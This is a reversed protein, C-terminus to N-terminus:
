GARRALILSGKELPDLDIREIGAFGASELWEVYDGYRYTQTGTEYLLTLRFASLFANNPTDALYEHIVLLGGPNLADYIQQIALRNEDATHNHAVSLYFVVDHQGHWDHVLLEGPSAHIRESLGHRAITSDTETLASPLDVILASLQPYRQCFRISHMGHSGGLDLLRRHERTIPVHALLDPGLDGAFADMYASFTKGLQPKDEMAQWLTREPSGRRVAASLDGMMPWAELTWQLGPTYDVQGASTFWRQTSATNAFQEGHQELYGVTVLFDALFRTGNISAQIKDALRPIDLPGQALAEFLGLKGASLIAASKMMPMYVDLMALEASGTPQCVDPKTISPPPTHRKNM